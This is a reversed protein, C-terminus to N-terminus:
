TKNENTTSIVQIHSDKIYKRGGRRMRIRESREKTKEDIEKEKEEKKM